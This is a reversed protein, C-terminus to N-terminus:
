SGPESKPGQEDGLDDNKDCELVTKDVCSGYGWSCVVYYLFNICSMIGLLWYYKDYHGKNINTSVWSEKGNGKTLENVTSLLLSALLNAFASGLLYLSSAISSMSKPFESYYFENQGIINLGDALGNIVHQPILWMASMKIVGQSNDFFGDEIAKNKRVHEVIGSVMMGIISCALGAGMRLKVSIYVPQGKIKSLLPLIVRDYLIVWVMITVITFFSFSAAPIEFRSTIHRDMTKAQLVPFTTQNMTVSLMICSSWLPTVKILAKLEEVQDVTCITWPDKAMVKTTDEPKSLICAKNLFRLNNTPKTVIADNKNYWSGDISDPLELKRNKWAVSIVQCFSTFLSKEVKMKYYLPYAVVFLFTSLFMLVVPVGFGVRWGHHDQIYVIGTFAIMVAMIATSYYWGFFSELVRERKPNDKSDIQDAGFALSCPRVGGAGISIFAFSSFLLTYQIHTPTKCSHPVQVDCSPPKANQIVTTLWLLITGMLSFISGVFITLFRGLFSDSLFAGVIPLFNTAASWLLIINTGKAYSMHYDYLLYIIMNPVLGYSALKEFSENALIFPMTRWGGKKIRSSDEEKMKSKEETTPVEM